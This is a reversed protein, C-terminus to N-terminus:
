KGPLKLALKSSTFLVRVVAVAFLAVAYVEEPTIGGIGYVAQIQGLVFGIVVIALEKSTVISKEDAM